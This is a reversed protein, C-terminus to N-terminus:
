RAAEQQIFSALAKRVQELQLRVRGQGESFCSKNLYGSVWNGRNQALMWDPVCRQKWLDEGLDGLWLGPGM